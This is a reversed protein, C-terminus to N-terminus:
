QLVAQAPIPYQSPKFGYVKQVKQVYEAAAQQIPIMRDLGQYHADRWGVNRIPTIYGSLIRVGFDVNDEIKFLNIGQQDALRGWTPLHIQM